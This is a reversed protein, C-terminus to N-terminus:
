TISKYFELTKYKRDTQALLYKECVYDLVKYNEDSLAFSFLKDDQSYCIHRMATVVGLPVDECPIDEVCDPCYLRGDYVCFSMVDDEFKGCGACAVLDPMYGALSLTRLEAIAKLQLQPRKDKSLFHLCNLTLRLFQGADSEQPALEYQLECFFQALALKGIDNRLDFFIEKPQVEDIVYADRGRYISLDSYAFLQSGSQSRSKVRQAGRVFARLVGYDRTLVTVLRDDGSTRHEKIILGDTNLRM